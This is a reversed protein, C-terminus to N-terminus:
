LLVYAFCDLVDHQLKNTTTLEEVQNGETASELLFVGSVVELLQNFTEIIKVISTENVTIQLGLIKHEVAIEIQLNCVKSESCWGFSLGTVAHELGLESSSGVHSRLDM